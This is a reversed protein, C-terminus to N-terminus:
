EDEKELTIFVGALKIPQSSLNHVQIGLRQGRKVKLKTWVQTFAEPLRTEPFYHGIWQPIRPKHWWDGINLALVRADNAHVGLALVQAVTAHQAQFFPRDPFLQIQLGAVQALSLLFPDTSLASVEGPAILGQWAVLFPPRM